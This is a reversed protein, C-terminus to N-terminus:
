SLQKLCFHTVWVGGGLALLSGLFHLGILALAWSIKQGQFLEWVELSFTSFTTLAGLFGTVIFLRWEPSLHPFLSFLSFVVGMFFGGILNALLTGLPIYHLVGNFLLGLGWRLVAGLSAGLSIAMM